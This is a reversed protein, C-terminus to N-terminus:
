ERLADAVRRADREIRAARRYLDVAALFDKTTAVPKGGAGAHLAYSGDPRLHLVGRWDSPGIGCVVALHDYGAVQVHDRTGVYRSTKADLLGVGGLHCPCAGVQCEARLRGRLDLRGAVGLTPDCVVQEVQLAEPDHDLWFRVVGQAYGQEEPTMNEFFPVAAGQALARLAQEHVNTGITAKADRLQDYTLSAEELAAWIAEGSELWGLAVRMDEAEELSLGDSALIAIGKGNERAAWRMLTDPRFDIPKIATTVGTLRKGRGGDEKCRWYSHDEDFYWLRINNPLTICEGGPLEGTM